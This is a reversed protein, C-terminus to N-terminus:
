EIKEGILNDGFWQFHLIIETEDVIHLPLEEM